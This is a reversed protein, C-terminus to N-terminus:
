IDKKLIIDSSERTTVYISFATLTAVGFIYLLGYLRNSLIGNYGFLITDATPHPNENDFDSVEYVFMIFLLFSFIALFNKSGGSNFTNNFIDFFKNDGINLVYLFTSTLVITAVTLLLVTTFTNYYSNEIGLMRQSYMLVFVFIVIIFLIVFPKSTAQKSLINRINSVASGPM